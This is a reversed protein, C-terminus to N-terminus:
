PNRKVNKPNNDDTEWNAPNNIIYERIRNLESEDRVIHEWYNRQLLKRDFSQWNLQHVGDIYQDTVISKWAGIIEGLVPDHETPAIGQPQGSGSQPQGLGPRACPTAGVNASRDTIVLTGHFHNPMVIFEDLEINPFRQPLAEWEAQLMKGADNLQMEGNVVDGFLCARNQAVITVYYAGAQSYDYGKLRISRRHHKQPDYTM